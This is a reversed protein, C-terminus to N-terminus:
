LRRFTNEKSRLLGEGGGVDADETVGSSFADGLLIEEQLPHALDSKGRLKQHLQQPREVLPVRDCVRDHHVHMGADALAVERKQVATVSNSVRSTSQHERVSDVEDDPEVRRVDM